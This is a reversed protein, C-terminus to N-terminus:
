FRTKVNWHSGTKNAINLLTFPMQACAAEAATHSLCTFGWSLEGAAETGEQSRPSAPAAGSGGTCRPPAPLWVGREQTWMRDWQLEGQGYELGTCSQTSISYLYKSVYRLVFFFFTQKLSKIISFYIIIITTKCITNHENKKNFIYFFM